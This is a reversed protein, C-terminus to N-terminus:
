YTNDAGVEDSHGNSFENVFILQGTVPDFDFVHWITGAQGTPIDYTALLTNGSYVTVKAGSYSMATSEANGGNSYDHVYYRYPRTQDAFHVTITEPGYSSTDDIDLNAIEDGDVDYAERNSSPYYVHFETGNSDYGRLHSDLDDPDEGWSLVIRLTDDTDIYPSISFSQNLADYILEDDWNSVAAQVTQYSTIYGDKAIEITYFGYELDYTEYRGDYDTTLVLDSRGSTVNYGKRFTLTAGEIPGNTLADTIIGGVACVLDEPASSERGLVFSIHPTAYPEFTYIGEVTEYGLASVTFRYAGADLNVTCAGAVDCTVSAVDTGNMDLLEVLVNANPVPTVGDPATVTCSVNVSSFIGEDYSESQIGAADFADTICTIQWDVFGMDAAAALLAMRYDYFTATPNLYGWARYLLETLESVSGIGNEYMTYIAHSIVTSNHHVGGGDETGTYYGAGNLKEPYARYDWWPDSVSQPDALNRDDSQIWDTYGNMVLEVLEGMVDAYAEMLAGTQGSYNIKPILASQVAHTYEHAVVDLQEEYNVGSGFALIVFGNGNYQFANYGDQYGDNVFALIRGGVGDYSSLGLVSLYFDYTLTLNKYLEVAKEDAYSTWINDDDWMPAFNKYDEEDAWEPALQGDANHYVVNRDADYFIYGDAMYEDLYDYWVTNFTDTDYSDQRGLTREYTDDASPLWAMINTFARLITGDDASVVVTYTGDNFVYAMENYGDMTYAVLEGDGDVIPGYGNDAAYTAAEYVSLSVTSDFTSDITAHEGSLSTVTGAADTTVILQQGYVPYGNHTQQMRFQVTDDMMTTVGADTYEESADQIGMINQVDNLAEVATDFDSVATGSFTGLIFSPAYTNNSLVIEPLTGGNLSRINDLEEIKRQTSASLVDDVVWGAYLTINSTIPTSFDFPEGTCAANLYWGTFTYGPRMQVTPPNALGGIAVTQQGPSTQSPDNLVFKVTYADAVDAGAGVLGADIESGDTMQLILHGEENIYASQVGVGPAGQAGTEGTAGEEGEAKVGTNQDGIWWYGDQIYPTQGSSSSGGSLDCSAFFTFVLGLTLVLSMLRAYTRTKM